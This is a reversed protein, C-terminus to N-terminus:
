LGSARCTKRLGVYTILKQSRLRDYSQPMALLLDCWPAVRCAAQGAYNVNIVLPQKTM